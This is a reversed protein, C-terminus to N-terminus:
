ACIIVLATTPPNVPSGAVRAGHGIGSEFGGLWGEEREGGLGAGGEAASKAQEGAAVLTGDEETVSGDVEPVGGFGEGLGDGDGDESTGLDGGVDLQGLGEAAVAVANSSQDAATRTLAQGGDDGGLAAGFSGALDGGLDHGRDLGDGLQSVGGGGSHDGLPRADAEAGFSDTLEAKETGGFLAEEGQNRM